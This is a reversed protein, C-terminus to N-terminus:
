GVANSVEKDKVTKRKTLEKWDVDIKTCIDIYIKSNRLSRHLTSDSLAPISAATNIKWMGEKTLNVENNDITIFGYKSLLLIEGISSFHKINIKNFLYIILLIDLETQNLFPSM